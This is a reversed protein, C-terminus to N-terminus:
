EIISTIHGVLSIASFSVAANLYSYLGNSHSRVWLFQSLYPWLINLLCFHAINNHISHRIFNIAEQGGGNMESSFYTCLFPYYVYTRFLKRVVNRTYAVVIPSDDSIPECCNERQFMLFFELNVRHKGTGYKLRSICFLDGSVRTEVVM